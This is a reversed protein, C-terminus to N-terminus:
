DRVWHQFVMDHQDKEGASVHREENLRFGLGTIDPFHTDPEFVRTDISALHLEKVHPLFLEYIQGVASLGAM